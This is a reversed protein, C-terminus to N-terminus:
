TQRTLPFQFRVMTGQGPQSELEFRGDIEEMRQRMNKLGTGRARVSGAEFGKGNDAVIIRCVTADCALEIRVMTAQSYKLSNTLAEKYALFVNHRVEAHISCEPLENPAIFQYQRPRKEFLEDTRRNMYELLSRLSDNEPRVAWVIAELSRTMERAAASIKQTQSRFEVPSNTDAAAMDGLLAVETLSAGLDDHIDRAIRSRERELVRERELDALKRRSRAREIQRASFGAGALLLFATGFQFWKTEWFYPV